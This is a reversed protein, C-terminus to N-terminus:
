RLLCSCAFRQFSRSFAKKLFNAMVYSGSIVVIKSPKVTQQFLSNILEVPNERMVPILVLISPRKGHNERYNDM